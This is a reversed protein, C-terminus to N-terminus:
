GQKEMLTEMMMQMKELQTKLDDVEKQRKKEVSIKKRRAHYARTNANIVRGTAPDKMYSPHNEVKGLAM